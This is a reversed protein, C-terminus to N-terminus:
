NSLSKYLQLATANGRNLQITFSIAGNPFLKNLEKAPIIDKMKAFIVLSDSYKDMIM